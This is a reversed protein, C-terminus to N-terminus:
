KPRNSYIMFLRATLLVQLGSTALIQSCRVVISRTRMSVAWGVDRSNVDNLMRYILSEHIYYVNYMIM